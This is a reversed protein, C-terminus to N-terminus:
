RSAQLAKKGKRMRLRCRTAEDRHSRSVDLHVVWGDGEHSGLPEEERGAEGRGQVVVQAAQGRERSRRSAMMQRITATGFATEDRRRWLEREGKRMEPMRRGTVVEVERGV